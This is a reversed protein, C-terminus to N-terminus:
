QEAHNNVFRAIADFTDVPNDYFLFHASRAIEHVEVDSQRLRPLYSLTSNATGYLFLRPVPMALFEQLLRGSDSERVTEFSYAYYDRHLEKAQEIGSGHSFVSKLKAFFRRM